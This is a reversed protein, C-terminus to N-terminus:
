AFRGIRTISTHLPARLRPVAPNSMEMEEITLNSSLSAQSCVNSFEIGIGSGRNNYREFLSPGHDPIQDELNDIKKLELVLLVTLIVRRPGKTRASM